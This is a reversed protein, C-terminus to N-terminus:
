ASEKEMETRLATEYAAPLKCRKLQSDCVLHTSQGEALVTVAGDAETRLIRYAFKVMSSRVLAPRTEIRLIEDFRAASKFRCGIEAVPLLVGSEKELTDYSYGLARMLEVRGIEFWVLYNANYVIGMQDTEAYRVRIETTVAM